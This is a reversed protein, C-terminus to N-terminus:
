VSEVSLPNHLFTRFAPLFDSPNGPAGGCDMRRWRQRMEGGESGRHTKLAGPEGVGFMGLSQDSIALRSSGKKKQRLKSGCKRAAPLIGGSGGLAALVRYREDERYLRIM